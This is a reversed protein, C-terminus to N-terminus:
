FDFRLQILEAREKKVSKRSYKKKKPPISVNEEQDGGYVFRVQFPQKTKERPEDIIRLLNDVNTKINTHELRKKNKNHINNKRNSKKTFYGDEKRTVSQPVAESYELAKYTGDELLIFIEEKDMKDEYFRDEKEVWGCAEEIVVKVNYVYRYTERGWVVPLKRNKDTVYGQPKKFIKKRNGRAVAM